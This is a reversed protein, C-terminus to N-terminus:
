ETRRPVGCREAVVICRLTDAAIELDDNAIAYDYFGILALEKDAQALRVEIEEPKETGREQLRRVLEERQPPIVFILVSEPFREKIQRGGQVDIDLLVDSGVALIEGTAKRSTGYFEGYVNAWEVFEDEGIMRQFEDSSVFNYDIGDAEVARPQRTTHSVSVALDPLMELLEGILTTKGGGSTSSIVFLIGKGKTGNGGKLEAM